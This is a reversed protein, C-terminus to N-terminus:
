FGGTFAGGEEEAMSHAEHDSHTRALVRQQVVGVQTERKRRSNRHTIIFFSSDLPHLHPPLCLQSMGPFHDNM